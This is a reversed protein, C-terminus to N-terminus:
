KDASSNISQWRMYGVIERMVVIRTKMLKNEIFIDLSKFQIYNNSKDIFLIRDYRIHAISFQM